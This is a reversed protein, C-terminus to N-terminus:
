TGNSDLVSKAAINVWPVDSKTLDNIRKKVSDRVLLASVKQAEPKDEDYPPAQGNWHAGGLWILASTVQAIDNSNLAAEWDDPTRQSLVPGVTLNTNLYDNRDFKGNVEMYALVISNGVLVYHESSPSGGFCYEGYVALTDRNFFYNKRINMATLITRWGASFDQRSLLHGSTDFVHIRLRTDGPIELLPREEVLVYAIEDQANSMTRFVRPKYAFGDSHPSGTLADIASQLVSAAGPKLNGLDQNEFSLLTQWPTPHSRHFRHRLEALAAGIAVMLFSAGVILSIRKM